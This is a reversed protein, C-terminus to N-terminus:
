IREMPISGINAHEPATEGVRLAGEVTVPEYGPAVAVLSYSYGKPLQDKFTFSGDHGTEASSFILDRDRTRLFERMEANPKLVIVLGDRVPRDSDADVMMGSVEADTEDTPTGVMMKGELAVKGGIGLVLHYEGDPLGKRNSIKVTKRGEREDDWRDEKEIIIKGQSMWVVSWPTGPDMEDYEFSAFVEDVGSPIRTTPHIPRSDETVRLSFLLESFEPQSRRRREYRQPPRTAPPAIEQDRHSHQRDVRMGAEELLPIALNIPRLGNIFGGIAMPTDRQDVRGDRNTDLVPRADVPTVGTGAAAQTPIGVLKGDDDVATGGSNGGSITADTKIWARM